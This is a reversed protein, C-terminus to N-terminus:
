HESVQMSLSAPQGLLLTEVLVDPVATAIVIEFFFCESIEEQGTFDVVSLERGFFPGARFEFTAREGLISGVATDLGGMLDNVHFDQKMQPDTMVPESTSQM